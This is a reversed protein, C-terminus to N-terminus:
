SLGNCFHFSFVRGFAPLWGPDADLGSLRVVGSARNLDLTLDVHSRTVEIKGPQKLLTRVIESAIDHRIGLSRALRIRIYPLLFALFQRLPRRIKVGLRHCAALSRGRKGPPLLQVLANKDGGGNFESKAFRSAEERLAEHGSQNRLQRRVVPFGDPHWLELYGRGDVRVRLTQFTVPRGNSFWSHPLRYIDASVFQGGPMEGATRKDLHALVEWVPDANLQANEASLLSRAILELLECATLQLSCGTEAELRSPLDLSRVLNVLFLVGGLETPFSECPLPIPVSERDADPDPISAPLSEQQFSTPQSVHPLSRVSPEFSRTQTAPESFSRSASAPIQGSPSCIAAQESVEHPIDASKRVPTEFSIAGVQPDVPPIAPPLCHQLETPALFPVSEQGRERSPQEEVALRHGDSHTLRQGSPQESHKTPACERPEIGPRLLSKRWRALSQPFSRTRLIRPSQQLLLCVGLLVSHEADLTPPVQSESLLARWPPPAPFEESPSEERASEPSHSRSAPANEPGPLISRDLPRDFVASLPEIEFAHAVEQFLTLAQAPSFARVVRAAKGEAALHALAAPVYRAERRWAAFITDLATGPLTRLIARWWWLTPARGRLLDLALCALLEGQDAFLVANANLPVFGQAPRAARRTLEALESQAAREWPRTAAIAWADPKLQRPMPDRLRRVILTAAASFGPPEFDVTNLLHSMSLGVSLRSDPDRRRTRMARTAVASDM